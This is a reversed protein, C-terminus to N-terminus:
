LTEPSYAITCAAAARPQSSSRCAAISDSVAILRAPASMTIEYQVFSSARHSQASAAVEEAPGAGQDRAADVRGYARHAGDSQVLREEDAAGLPGLQLVHVSVAVEVPHHGPAREHEAMGIGLGDRGHDVGRLVAGAESRRGLGLDVEGGLDDRGEGRDLLHPEHGRPRLRRHAGDPEGPRCRPAVAHEAKGTAVVAVDVRQEGVGARSDGRERDRRARADRGSHGGVRDDGRVVVDDRGRGRDLAVSFAEGADEDLRHRAVHADDRGPPPRGSAAKPPGASIM